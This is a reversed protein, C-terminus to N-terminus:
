PAQCEARETLWVARSRYCETSTLLGPAQHVICAGSFAWRLSSLSSPSMPVGPPGPPGSGVPPPSPASTSPATALSSGSSWPTPCPGIGLSADAGEPSEVPSGCSNYGEQTDLPLKDPVPPIATPIFLHGSLIVTSSFETIVKSNFTRIFTCSITKISFNSIKITSCQFIKTNIARFIKTIKYYSASPPFKPPSLNTEEDPPLLDHPVMECQQVLKTLPSSLDVKPPTVPVGAEPTRQLCQPHSAAPTRLLSAPSQSPSPFPTPTNLRKPERLHALWDSPLPPAAPATPSVFVRTKHQIPPPPQLKEGMGVGYHIFKLTDEQEEGRSRSSNLPRALEKGAGRKLIESVETFLPSGFSFCEVPQNVLSYSIDGCDAQRYNVSADNQVSQCLPVRAPENPHYLCKQEKLKEQKKEKSETIVGAKCIGFSYSNDSCKKLGTDDQSYYTPLTLPLNTRCADRLKYMKVPVAQSTYAQEMPLTSESADKLETAQLHPEKYTVGMLQALSKCLDRLTSSTSDFEKSLEAVFDDACINLDQVQVAINCLRSWIGRISDGQFEKPMVKKTQHDEDEQENPPQASM